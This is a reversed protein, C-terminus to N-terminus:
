LLGYGLLAFGLLAYHYPIYWAEFRGGDTSTCVRFPKHSHPTFLHTQHACSPHSRIRCNKHPHCALPTHVAAMLLIVPGAVQWWEACACACLLGCGRLRAVGGCVCM